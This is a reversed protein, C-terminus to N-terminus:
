KTSPYQRRPSDTKGQNVSHWGAGSHYTEVGDAFPDAVLARAPEDVYRGMDLIRFTQSELLGSLEEDAQCNERESASNGKKV